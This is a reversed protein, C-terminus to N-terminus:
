LLQKCLFEEVVPLSSVVPGSCVEVISFLSDGLANFLELGFRLQESDRTNLVLELVVDSDDDFAEPVCANLNPHESSVLDLCGGTNGDGGAELGVFFLQEEHSVDCVNVCGLLHNM